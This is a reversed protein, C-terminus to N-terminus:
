GGSGRQSLGMSSKKDHKRTVRGNAAVEGAEKCNSGCVCLESSLVRVGQKRLKVHLSRWGACERFQRTELGINCDVSLLM